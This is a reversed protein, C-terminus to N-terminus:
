DKSERAAIISDLVEVLEDRSYSYPGWENLQLLQEIKTNIVWGQEEANPVVVYRRLPQEDFLAHMFAASVEDPKKYSLETKRPRQM